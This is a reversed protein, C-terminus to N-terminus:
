ARPERFVSHAYFTVAAANTVSISGSGAGWVDVWYAFYIKSWSGSSVASAYRIQRKLPVYWKMTRFSPNHELYRGTSPGAEGNLLYRKHRLVTWQDPNIPYKAFVLNPNAIDFNLFRGSQTGDRFFQATPPLATRNDKPAIICINLTLPANGLNQFQMYIKFGRLNVALRQRENVDNVTTQQIDTLDHGVLTRTDFQDGEASATLSEKTTRTGTREGINRRSFIM